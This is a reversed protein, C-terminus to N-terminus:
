PTGAATAGTATTYTERPATAVQRITFGLGPVITLARGTVTVSVQTATSGATSIALATLVGNGQETAFRTAATLGEAPNHGQLRATDAGRQAASLAISRAFFYLAAQVIVLVLLLFVPFLVALELTFSGREGDPRRAQGARTRM